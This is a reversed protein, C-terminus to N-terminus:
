IKECHFIFRCQEVSISSLLIKYKRFLELLVLGLIEIVEKILFLYVKTTIFFLDLVM